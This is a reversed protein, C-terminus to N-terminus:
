IALPLITFGDRYGFLGELDGLLGETWVMGKHGCAEVVQRREVFVLALVGLGPREM